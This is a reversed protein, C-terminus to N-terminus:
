CQLQHQLFTVDCLFVNLATPPLDPAKDWIQVANQHLTSLLWHSNFFLSSTASLMLLKLLFIEPVGNLSTEQKDM